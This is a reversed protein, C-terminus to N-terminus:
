YDTEEAVDEEDTDPEEEDAQAFAEIVDDEVPTETNEAEIAKIEECEIEDAAAKDLDSM